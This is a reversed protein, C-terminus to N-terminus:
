GFKLVHDPDMSNMKREFYDLMITRDGVEAVVVTSKDKQGCGTLGAALSMLLALCLIGAAASPIFSVSSFRRVLM